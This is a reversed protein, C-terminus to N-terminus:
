PKKEVGKPTWHTVMDGTGNSIAIVCCIDINYIDIEEVYIEEM